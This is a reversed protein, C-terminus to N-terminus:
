HLISVWLSSSDGVNADSERGDVRLKRKVAVHQSHALCFHAIRITGANDSELGALRKELKEFGLLPLIRNPTENGPAPRANVVHAKTYIVQVACEVAAAGGPDPQYILRRSNTGFAFPNCEDM